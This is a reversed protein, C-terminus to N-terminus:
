EDEKQETNDIGRKIAVGIMIAIEIFLNEEVAIGRSALTEYVHRGVQDSSEQVDSNIFGFAGPPGETIPVGPPVLEGKTMGCELILRTYAQNNRVEDFIVKIKVECSGAFNRTMSPSKVSNLTGKLDKPDDWYADCGNCEVHGEDTHESVENDTVENTDLYPEPDINATFVWHLEGDCYPCNM